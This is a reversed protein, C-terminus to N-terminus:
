LFWDVSLILGIQDVPLGVAQLVIVMTVLGAQPVGAAGVAAMTATISSPFFLLLECSNSCQAYYRLRITFIDVFSLNYDNVQAIYIAAVAEYLATGDLNVTAGVPLVFKSIRHDVGAKLEICRM